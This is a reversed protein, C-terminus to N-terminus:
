GNLISKFLQSFGEMPPVDMGMDPSAPQDPQPPASPKGDAGISALTTGVPTLQGGDDIINQERAFQQGRDTLGASNPVYTILNLKMLMNRAAVMNPGVSIDAAARAPVDHSAIIKALVQLQTQTPRLTPLTCM